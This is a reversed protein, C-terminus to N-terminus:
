RRRMVLYIGLVILFFVAGLGGYAISKSVDV